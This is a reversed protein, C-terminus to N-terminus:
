GRGLDEHSREGVIVRAAFRLLSSRHIGLECPSTRVGIAQANKIPGGLVTEVGRAEKTYRHLSTKGSGHSIHSSLALSSALDLRFFSFIMFHHSLPARMTSTKFLCNLSIFVFLRSEDPIDLNLVVSARDREVLIYSQITDLIEENTQWSGTFVDCVLM